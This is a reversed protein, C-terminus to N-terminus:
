ALPICTMAIVRDGAELPEEGGLAHYTPGGQRRRLMPRIGSEAHLREPMCGVWTEDVTQHVFVLLMGELELAHAVNPYLAAAVFAPAASSAASIAADFGLVAQAKRAVDADSLRVVTRIGPNLRKAILGVELNTPDDATVAVVADAHRIAAAELTGTVRADGILVPVLTRASEVFESSPNREIAVVREAAHGLVEVTRYGVDGLGVVVTHYQRPIRRGGLARQLRASVVFDTIISYLTAITASGIIMFGASYLKVIDPAKAPSIDGYGTTTVTTMVFYISDVFSLELALQFVFVNLLVFLCLLLFLRKLALPANAWIAVVFALTTGPHLTGLLGRLWNKRSRSPEAVTGHTWRNWDSATAAVTIRDGRRLPREAEAEVPGPEDPHEHAFAALGLESALQAASSGVLPSGEEIPIHGLLCPVGDADFAGIIQGGAAAAAISPGAITSMALARRVGFRSEIEHALERDFLRIVIPLGPRRELADLALEVNVADQDITVILARAQDIGADRLVEDDRADGYVIRAGHTQLNRDWDTRAQLTVITVPEGLRLLMGAVRYGIQGMGCVIFHGSVM